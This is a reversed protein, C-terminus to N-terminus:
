QPHRKLTSHIMPIHVACYLQLHPIDSCNGAWNRSPMRSSDPQFSPLERNESGDTKLAAIGRFPDFGGYNMKAYKLAGRNIGFNGCFSAEGNETPM